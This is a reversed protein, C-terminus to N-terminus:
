RDLESSLMWCLTLVCWVIGLWWRHVTMYVIPAFVLLIAMLRNFRDVGMNAEKYAHLRPM